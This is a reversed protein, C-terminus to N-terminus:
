FDFGRIKELKRIFLRKKEEEEQNEELIVCIGESLILTHMHM